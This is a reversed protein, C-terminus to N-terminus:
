FCKPEKITLHALLTMVSEVATLSTTESDTHYDTTPFQITAGTVKGQTSTILRGLETVGLSYLSKNEKERLNNQEVIYDEKYSYRLGLAECQDEIVQVRQSDFEGHVDRRRLVIDQQEAAERDHYPSTDLVLLKDTSVGARIFWEKLYRWSRGSEEQAAFLATGEYGMRFLHIIAAVSIVNDLQASILGDNVKLRDVYAIPTGPFVHELGHVDFLLTNRQSCIISRNITGQGLYAGSWPDYAEVLQQTFRSTIRQYIQESVSSGDLDGQYKEIFASYQFENPGTCVLGHRDIHASLYATEPTKGEAVLVGEYQTVKVGLEELERRLTRFFPVECGVVSPRRILLKLDDLFATADWNMKRRSGVLNIEFKINEQEGHVDGCLKPLKLVFFGSFCKSVFPVSFCFVCCCFWEIKHPCYYLKKIEWINKEKKRHIPM